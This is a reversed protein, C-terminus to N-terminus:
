LSMLVYSPHFRRARTARPIYNRYVRKTRPQPCSFPPTDLLRGGVVQPLYATAFSSNRHIM